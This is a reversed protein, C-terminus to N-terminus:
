SSHRRPRDRCDRGGGMGLAPGRRDVPTSLNALVDRATAATGRLPPKFGTGVIADLILDADALAAQLDAATAAALHLIPTGELQNFAAAAPGALKGASGLLLVSVSLGAAALTRAAVFGDGGNNGTGCLVAIHQADPYQTRVFAAVARGAQNMLADLPIGFQEATAKDTAAMEAATLITM